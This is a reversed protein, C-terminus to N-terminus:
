TGDTEHSFRLRGLLAQSSVVMGQPLRERLVPQIFVCPPFQNGNGEQKYNM